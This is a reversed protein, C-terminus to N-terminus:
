LVYQEFLKELVSEPNECLGPHIRSSQIITSRSAVLWRFRSQIAQTGIYGGEVGGKCILEWAELYKKVLDTDVESSFSTIRNVDIKYKM